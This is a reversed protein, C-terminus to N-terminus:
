LKVASWTGVQATDMYIKGSMATGAANVAGQFKYTAQTWEITVASGDIKSTNRLTFSGAGDEYVYSGTLTNDDHQVLNMTGNIGFQGGFSMTKRWMGTLNASVALIQSTSDSGASSTATLTVVFSGAAAYTHAPNEATSTKGDGFDWLYDKANESQNSFTIEEGMKFSTKNMTFSAIPPDKKCGALLLIAFFLTNFLFLKKM